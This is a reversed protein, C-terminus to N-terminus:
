KEPLKARWKEAEQEHFRIKAEIAAVDDEGSINMLRLGQALASEIEAKELAMRKARTSLDGETYIDLKGGGAAVIAAHVRHEQEIGPTPRRYEYLRRKLSQAEGIYVRGDNLTIRYLGAAEPAAPFQPWSKACLTILGYEQWVVGEM